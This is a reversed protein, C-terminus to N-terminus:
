VGPCEAFLVFECFPHSKKCYFRYDPVIEKLLLPIRWMDQINHYLCIALRPRFARLTAVAGRLADFESGEIDMKIFDPKIGRESCFADVTTVGVRLSGPNEAASVSGAGPNRPDATYWLEGIEAGLASPVINFTCAAGGRSFTDQMVALNAPDIEFSYVHSAGHRAAWIATDGYCAGCDLVTDGQGPMVTGYSYQNYYFTCVLCHLLVWQETETKIVPLSADSAAKLCDNRFAQLSMGGTLSGARNGDGFFHFLVKYALEQRYASRSADDALMTCVNECRGLNALVPEAAKSYLADILSKAWTLSQATM